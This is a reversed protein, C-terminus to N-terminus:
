SEYIAGSQLRLVGPRPAAMETDHTVIVLTTPPRRKLAFLSEIVAGPRPTSTAPRSTPSSSKRGAIFRAGVSASREGGSLQVSLAFSARGFWGSRPLTRARARREEAAAIGDAGDRKGAGDPHFLQFDSLRFSRRMACARRGDEDLAGLRATWSCGARPPNGDACLVSSPRRGSGSRASSPALPAPPSPFFFYRSLWRPRHPQPLNQCATARGFHDVRGRREAFSESLGTFSHTGVNTTVVTDGDIYFTIRL